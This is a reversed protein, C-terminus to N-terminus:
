LSNAGSSAVGMQEMIFAESSCFVQGLSQFVEKTVGMGLIELGCDRLSRLGIAMVGM